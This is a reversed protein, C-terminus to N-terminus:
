LAIDAVPKNASAEAGGEAGAAQPKVYQLQLVHSTYELEQETAAV